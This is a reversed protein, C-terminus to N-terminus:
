SLHGITFLALLSIFFTIQYGADFAFRLTPLTLYSPPRIIIQWHSGVRSHYIQHFFLGDTTTFIELFTTILSATPVLRPGSTLRALATVLTSGHRHHM